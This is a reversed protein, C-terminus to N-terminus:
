TRRDPRGRGREAGRHGPSGHHTGVVRPAPTDPLRPARTVTGPHGCIEGGTGGAEGTQGVGPEVQTGVGAALVAVQGGEGLGRQGAPDTRDLQAVLTRGTLAPEARQLGPLLESGQGHQPVGATPVARQEAHVVPGVQGHGGARVDQVDTLVVQGDRHRAPEDARLHQDPQGAM